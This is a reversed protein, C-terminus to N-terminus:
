SLLLSSRNITYNVYATLYSITVKTRIDKRSAKKHLIVIARCLRDERVIRHTLFYVNNKQREMFNQQFNWWSTITKENIPFFRVIVHVVATIKILIRHNTRAPRVQPITQGVLSKHTPPHLKYADSSPLSSLMNFCDLLIGQCHSHLKRIIPCFIVFIEIKIMNTM